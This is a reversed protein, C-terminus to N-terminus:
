QLLEEILDLPNPAEDDGGFTNNIFNHIGNNMLLEVLDFDPDVRTNPTDITGTILIPVDIDTALGRLEKISYGLGTLPVATQINLANTVFNISGSYPITYKNDLVLNFKKYTAIGDRIQIQIPEFYGSVVERHTSNFMPLLQMTISGSDLEVEGIDISVDAQLESVDGALSVQVGSANFRIPKKITRIDSLVPGLDKLLHRTLGQSL